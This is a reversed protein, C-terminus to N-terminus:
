LITNIQNNGVLFNIMATSIISNSNQSVCSDSWTIINKINPNDKLIAVLCRLVACALDNGSQGV